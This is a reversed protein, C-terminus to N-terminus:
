AADGPTTPHAANRFVLVVFSDGRRHAHLMQFAAIRTEKDFGQAFNCDTIMRRAEDLSMPTVPRPANAM